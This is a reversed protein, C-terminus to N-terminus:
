DGVMSPDFFFTRKREKIDLEHGLQHLIYILMAVTIRGLLGNELTSLIQRSINVKRVLEEQTVGKRKRLERIKKRNGLIGNSYRM